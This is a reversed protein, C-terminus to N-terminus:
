INSEFHVHNNFRIIPLMLVCGVIYYYHSRCLHFPRILIFIVLSGFVVLNYYVINYLWTCRCISTSWGWLSQNTHSALPFYEVERWHKYENIHKHEVQKYKYGKNIKDGPNHYLHCTKEITIFPEPLSAFEDVSSINDLYTSTLLSNFYKIWCIKM